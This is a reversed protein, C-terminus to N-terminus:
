GESRRKNEIMRREPCRTFHCPDSRFVHEYVDADAEEYFAWQRSGGQHGCHSRVWWSFSDDRDVEPQGLYHPPWQGDPMPRKLWIVDTRRGAPANRILWVDAPPCRSGPEHRHPCKLCAPWTTSIDRKGFQRPM